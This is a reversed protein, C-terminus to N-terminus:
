MRQLEDKVSLYKNKTIKKIQYLREITNLMMKRIEQNDNGAQLEGVLIDFKNKLNEEENKIPEFEMKTQAIFADVFSKNEKNLKKYAKEDHKGIILDNIAQKSEASPIPVSSAIKNTSKYKITLQNKNFHVLDVYIKKNMNTQTFGRGFFHKPRKLKKNLGKGTTTAVFSEPPNEELFRKLEYLGDYTRKYDSITKNYKARFRANLATKKKQLYYPALISKMEEILIAKDQEIRRKPSIQILKRRGKSSKGTTNVESVQERVDELANVVDPYSSPTNYQSVVNYIMDDMAEEVILKDQQDQIENNREIAVRVVEKLVEEANTENLQRNNQEAIDVADDIISDLIDKIDMEDKENSSDLNLDMQFDDIEGTIDNGNRRPRDLPTLFRPQRRDEVDEMQYYRKSISPLEDDRGSDLLSSPLYESTSPLEEASVFESISKLEAETPPIYQDNTAQSNTEIVKNLKLFKIIQFTLKDSDFLKSAMPKLFKKLEDWHTKLYLLAVNSTIVKLVEEVMTSNDNTMQMLRRRIEQTNNDSISSTTNVTPLVVNEDGAISVVLNESINPYRELQQARWFQEGVAKARKEQQILADRQKQEIERIKLQVSM